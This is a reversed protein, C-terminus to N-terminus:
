PAHKESKILCNKTSLLGDGSSVISVDM